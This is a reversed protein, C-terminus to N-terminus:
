NSVFFRKTESYNGAQLCYFYAGSSLNNGNFSVEYIGPTLEDKVLTAIESGLMNFVKLTVFQSEPMSFKITTSGSFPNPYNQELKYDINQTDDDEISIIISPKAMLIWKKPDIVLTDNLSIPLRGHGDVMEVTENTGNVVIPINVDLLVNSETKWSFSASDAARVVHLVPYATERFFVEFFSDLNRATLEEAQNKM